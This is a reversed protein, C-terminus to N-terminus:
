SFVVPQLLELNNLIVVEDGVTHDKVVYMRDGSYEVLHLSLPMNNIGLDEGCEARVHLLM